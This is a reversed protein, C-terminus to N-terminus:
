PGQVVEFCSFMTSEDGHRYGDCYQHETAKRLRQILEGAGHICLVLRFGPGVIEVEERGLPKVDIPFPKDPM